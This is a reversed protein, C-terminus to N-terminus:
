SLRGIKDILNQYEIYFIDKDKINVASRLDNVLIYCQNLTTKDIENKNDVTNIKNALGQEAQSLNTQADDWKEGTVNIYSIVVKSEIDLMQKKQEDSRYGNMYQVLLEHMKGIQEMSKEKNEDKISQTASNLYNSFSLIAGGDVNLGHLDLSVSNWTTYIEEIQSKITNWNTEYKGNNALINSQMNGAEETKSGQSSKSQENGKQQEGNNEGAQGTGAESNQKSSDATDSSQREMQTGQPSTQFADDGISLGNFHGLMSILYNNLYKIEDSVKEELTSENNNSKSYVFLSGLILIIIVISIIIVLNKKM